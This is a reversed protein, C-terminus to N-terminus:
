CGREVVLASVARNARRYAPIMTRRPDQKAFGAITNLTNLLFHPKLQSRM